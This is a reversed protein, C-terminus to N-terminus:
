HARIPRGFQQFLRTGIIGVFVLQQGNLSVVPGCKYVFCPCSPSNINTHVRMYPIARWPGGGSCCLATTHKQNAPEPGTRAAELGPSPSRLGRNPVAAVSRHRMAMIQLDDLLLRATKGGEWGFLFPTKYKCNLSRNRRPALYLALLTKRPNLLVPKGESEDGDLRLQERWFGTIYIMPPVRWLFHRRCRPARLLRCIESRSTESHRKSFLTTPNRLTFAAKSLLRPHFGGRRTRCIGVFLRLKNIGGAAAPSSTVRPDPSIGPRSRIHEWM